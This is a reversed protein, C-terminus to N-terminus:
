IIYYQDPTRAVTRGGMRSNVSEFKLVESVLLDIANLNQRIMPQFLEFNPKPGSRILVRTELFVSLEWLTIIPFVTDGRKSLQKLRIM